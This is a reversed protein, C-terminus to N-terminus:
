KQLHHLSRIKGVFHYISLQEMFFFFTSVECTTLQLLQHSHALNAAPNTFDAGSSALPSAEDKKEIM